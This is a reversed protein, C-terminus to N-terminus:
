SVVSTKIFGPNHLASMEAGLKGEKEYITEYFRSSSSSLAMRRVCRPYKTNFREASLFSRGCDTRRGLASPLEPAGVLCRPRRGLSPTKWAGATRCDWLLPAGSM